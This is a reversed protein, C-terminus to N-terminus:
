VRDNKDDGLAALLAPVAAKDGIRGLAEAAARRNQLSPARLIEVLFRIADRDRWLGAAHCTIQLLTPEKATATGLMLRNWERAEPSDTRCAAWAVKESNWPGSVFKVVTDKGRRVIEDMVRNRVQPRSDSLWTGLDDPS